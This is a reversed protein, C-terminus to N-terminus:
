MALNFRKDKREELGPTAEPALTPYFNFRQAGGGPLTRKDNREEFGPIAEPALTPYFNFRQAGGGPLTRKDNREEFGPTAEPALTPYINFPDLTAFPQDVVALGSVAAVTMALSVFLAFTSKM